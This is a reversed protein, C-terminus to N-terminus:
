IIEHTHNISSSPSIIDSSDDSLLCSPVKEHISSSEKEEEKKTEVSKDEGQQDDRVEISTQMLGLSGKEYYCEM